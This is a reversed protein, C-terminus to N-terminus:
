KIYTGLFVTNIKQHKISYITVAHKRTKNSKIDNITEQVFQIEESAGDHYLLKRHTHVGAFSDPLVFALCIVIPCILFCHQDESSGASCM